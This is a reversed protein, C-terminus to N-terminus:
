THAVTGGQQTPLRLPVPSAASVPCPSVSGTSISLDVVKVSIDKGGAAALMLAVRHSGDLIENGRVVIMARRRIGDIGCSCVPYKSADFHAQLQRFADPTHDDKLHRLRVGERYYAAYAATDGTAFAYHPSNQIRVRKKGRCSGVQAACGITLSSLKASRVGYRSPVPIFWPLVFIRHSKLLKGTVPVKLYRLLKDVGVSTDTVHVVHQHSYVCKDPCLLRKANPSTKPNLERRIKWKLDVM